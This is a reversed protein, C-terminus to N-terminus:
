SYDWFKSSGFFWDCEFRNDVVIMTLLVGMLAQNNFDMYFGGGVFFATLWFWPEVRVPIGFLQFDFV